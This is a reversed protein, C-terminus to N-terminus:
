GVHLYDEGERLGLAHLQAAVRDRAGHGSVYNLVFPPPCLPTQEPSHIPKGWLTQGVKRPDLDVWASFDVGLAHLLRTRKRTKFGAGWIVRERPGQLRPDRALWQARLRDFAGSAYRADVRSTRTPRERWDLMVRPLKRMRVGAANLRLWLEYDEPFDGHAYPGHREFLERRICVSPHALPAEVYIAHAIQEPSLCANQWRLYETYGPQVADSPFAAVQCAIVGLTPEDAAMALQADLRDAHMRDDADMRAIWPARATAIGLNLAAVLGIRGAEVVRIRADEAAAARLMERSDDTSGDDIALLEWRTLTQARISDLCEALTDAANYVPM